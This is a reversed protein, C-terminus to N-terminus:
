RSSASQVSRIRFSIFASGYRASKERGGGPGQELPSVPGRQTPEAPRVPVCTRDIKTGLREPRVPISGSDAWKAGGGPIQWLGTAEEPVIALQRVSILVSNWFAQSRTSM